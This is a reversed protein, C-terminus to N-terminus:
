QSVSIKTAVMKHDSGRENFNKLTEMKVTSKVSQNMMKVFIHDIMRGTSVLKGNPSYDIPKAREIETAVLENPKLNQAGHVYGEKVFPQFATASLLNAPGKPNLPILDGFQDQNMDGAVVVSDLKYNQNNLKAKATKLVANVHQAKDQKQWERPDALHCSIFRTILGSHKDKLDVALHRKRITDLVFRSGEAHLLDFRDKKFLIAVGHDNSKYVYPTSGTGAMNGKHPAWACIYKDGLDEELKDFSKESVEQLCNVDLDANLINKSIIDIRYASNEEIDGTTKNIHYGIDTAFKHTHPYCTQPFLINYSGVTLDHVKKATDALPPVNTKQTKAEAFAKYVALHFASKEILYLGLRDYFLSIFRGAAAELHRRMSFFHTSNTKSNTKKFCEMIGKSLEDIAKVLSSICSPIAQLKLTAWDSWSRSDYKLKVDSFSLKGYNYFVNTPTGTGWPAPVNQGLEFSKFKKEAYTQAYSNSSTNEM